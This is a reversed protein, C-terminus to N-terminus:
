VMDKRKEIVYECHTLKPDDISCRTEKVTVRYLIYEGFGTLFGKIFYCINKAPSELETAINTHQEIIIQDESIKKAVFRGWGLNSMIDVFNNTLDKISKANINADWNQVLNWGARKGLWVLLSLVGEGYISSLLDIIQPPFLVFRDDFIEFKGTSYKLGKIKFNRM